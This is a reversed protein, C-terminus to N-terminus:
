LVCPADATKLPTSFGLIPRSSLGLEDLLKDLCESWSPLSVQPPDTRNATEVLEALRDALPDPDDGSFYTVNALSQERFVPLDRALIWRGHMAAEALPLGFGEARSAFLLGRCAGYFLSLAEDSVNELWHLREGHMAHGRVRQQLESTKWGAKGIIVLDPANEPDRRWLLDFSDLAANYGKRPEITGVMLVTPRKAMRALVARAESTVGTSPRSSAIDGSLYIRGVRPAPGPGLRDLVDRKVQDSICLIQDARTRLVEFWRSFHARTTPNFWEARNLPLLDYVVMHISAGANRWADLQQICGPLYNAALDLGLFKDGPRVGVPAGVQRKRVLFDASAYCYGRSRSAYVPVLDFGEQNARCLESWVARVVRQIGTAADHRIIVSVDVLLRPKRAPGNDRFASRNLAFWAGRATAAMTNAIARM